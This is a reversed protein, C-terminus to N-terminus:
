FRVRCVHVGPILSFHLSCYASFLFMHSCIVSVLWLKVIEGNGGDGCCAFAFARLILKSCQLIGIIFDDL